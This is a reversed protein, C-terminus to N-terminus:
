SHFICAPDVQHGRPPNSVKPLKRDFGDLREQQGRPRYRHPVEGREEGEEGEKRRRRRRRSFLAWSGQASPCITENRKRSARSGRKSSNSEM